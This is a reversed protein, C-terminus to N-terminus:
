AINTTHATEIVWSEHLLSLFDLVDLHKCFPSMRKQGNTGNVIKM